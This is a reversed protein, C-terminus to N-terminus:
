EQSMNSSLNSNTNTFNDAKKNLNSVDYDSGVDQNVLFIKNKNLDKVLVSEQNFERAIEEALYILGKSSIGNIEISISKENFTNGDDGVYRGSFFNGISFAGIYDSVEDGGLTKDAKNFKGVLKALKSKVFFRNMYTKMKKKLWNTLKNKSIQLSNVDTSFVVIGGRYDFMGYQEPHIAEIVDSNEKILFQYNGTKFKDKNDICEKIFGGKQIPHGNPLTNRGSPSFYRIEKVTFTSENIADKIISNLIKKLNAM